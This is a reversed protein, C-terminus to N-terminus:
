AGPYVRFCFSSVERSNPFEVGHLGFTTRLLLADVQRLSVARVLICGVIIIASALAIACEARLRELNKRAARQEEYETLPKKSPRFMAGAEKSQKSM